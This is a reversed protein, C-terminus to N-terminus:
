HINNFLLTDFLLIDEFTTVSIILFTSHIFGTYLYTNTFPSPQLRYCMYNYHFPSSNSVPSLSKFYIKYLVGLDWLGEPHIESDRTSVGIM